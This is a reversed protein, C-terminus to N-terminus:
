GAVRVHLNGYTSVRAEFGPPVLTTSDTQIIIAPGDVTQEAKLKTRDYRPTEVTQGDDFTTPRVYLV